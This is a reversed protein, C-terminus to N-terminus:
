YIKSSKITLHKWNPDNKELKKFNDKELCREDFSYSGNFEEPDLLQSMGLFPVLTKPDYDSKEIDPMIVNFLVKAWCYSLKFHDLLPGPMALPREAPRGVSVNSIRIM